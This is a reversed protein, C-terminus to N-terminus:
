EVIINITIFEGEGSKFNLDYTGAQKPQFEYTTTLTKTAMFCMACNDYRAEVKIVRSKEDGSEIFRSFQGCSNMVVFSVDISITKGVSGIQPSNVETVYVVKYDTCDDKNCAFLSLIIAFHCITKKMTIHNQDNDFSLIRFKNESGKKRYDIEYAARIGVRPRATQRKNKTRFFLYQMKRNLCVVHQILFM